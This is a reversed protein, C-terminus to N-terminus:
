LRDLSNILGNTTHELNNDIVYADYTKAAELAKEFYGIHIVKSDVSIQVRWKNQPKDFSVGRYGSTNNARLRRTNRSQVSQTTLRCNGPCYDGDNDIRDIKLNDLYGNALSWDRFLDFNIWEDCVKIGRGGYCSYDSNNVNNCRQNMGKWIKYLRTGTGGHKSFRKGTAIAACPKCSKARLGSHIVVEVSTTCDSCLFLGYRRKQASLETPFRMDLKKILQM